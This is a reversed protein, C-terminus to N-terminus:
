LFDKLLFHEGCEHHSETKQIDGYEAVVIGIQCIAADRGNPTEVDVAVIRTEKTEM